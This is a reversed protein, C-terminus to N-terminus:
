VALQRAGRYGKVRQDKTVRARRGLKDVVRDISAYLNESQDTASLRQGRLRVTIEAHRVRKNSHCVIDASIPGDAFRELRSLKARVFSEVAPSSEMGRFTFSLKM